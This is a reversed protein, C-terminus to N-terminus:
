NGGDLWLMADASFGNVALEDTWPVGSLMAKCYDIYVLHLYRGANGISKTVICNKEGVLEFCRKAASYDGKCLYAMGGEFPYDEWRSMLYLSLGGDTSMVSTLFATRKDLLDDFVIRVYGEVKDAFGAPDGCPFYYTKSDIQLSETAFAATVRMTDTIRHKKEPDIIAFQIEDFDCPKIQSNIKVELRGDVLFFGCNFNASWFIDGLRQYTCFANKSYKMSYSKSISELSNFFLTRYTTTGM